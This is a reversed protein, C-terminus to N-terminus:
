LGRPAPLSPSLGLVCRPDCDDRREIVVGNEEAQEIIREEVLEAEFRAQEAQAIKKARQVPDLASRDDAKADIEAAIRRIIEDKHLWVSFAMPDHVYGDRGVRGVAKYGDMAIGAQRYVSPWEVGGRESELLAMVSPTGKEALAEIEARARAKAHDSPWPADIAAQKDAAAKEIRARVEAVADAWSQGKRLGPLSIAPAPEIVDYNVIEREIYREVQLVVERVPRAREVRADVEAQAHDREALAADRKATAERLAADNRGAINNSRLVSVRQEVSQLAQQADFLRDTAARTIAGMDNAQAKLRRLKERAAPPLRSAPDGSNLVAFHGHPGSPLPTYAPAPDFSRATSLTTDGASPGGVDARLGRPVGHVQNDGALAALDNLQHFPNSM